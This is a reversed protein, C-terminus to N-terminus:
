SVRPESLRAILVDLTQHIHAATQGMTLCQMLYAMALVQNADAAKQHTLDAVTLVTQHALQWIEHRTSPQPAAAPLRFRNSM